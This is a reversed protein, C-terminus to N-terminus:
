FLVKICPQVLVRWDTRERWSFGADQQQSIGETSSVKINCLIIAHMDWPLFITSAGHGKQTHTHTYTHEQLCIIYIVDKCFMQPKCATVTLGTLESFM